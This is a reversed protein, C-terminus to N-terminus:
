PEPQPPCYEECGCAATPVATVAVEGIPIATKCADNGPNVKYINADWTEVCVDVAHWNGDGDIIWSTATTVGDTFYAKWNKNGFFDSIVGNSTDYLILGLQAQFNGRVKINTCGKYCPFGQGPPCTVQKLVIKKKNCNEIEIFMGVDMVIPIRCIELPVYECPWMGDVKIQGTAGWIDQSYSVTALMGILAIAFISKKVM